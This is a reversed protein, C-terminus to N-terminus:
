KCAEFSLTIGCLVSVSAETRDKHEEYWPSGGRCAAMTRLRQKVGGPIRESFRPVRVRACARVDVRGCM